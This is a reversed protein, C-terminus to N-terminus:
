RRDSHREPRLNRKKSSHNTNVISNELGAAVVMPFSCVTVGKVKCFARLRVLRTVALENTASRSIVFTRDHSPEINELVVM